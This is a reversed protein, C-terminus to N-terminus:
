YNQSSKEPPEIISLLPRGSYDSIAHIRPAASSDNMQKRASDEEPTGAFEVFWTDDNGNDGLRLAENKWAETTLVRM